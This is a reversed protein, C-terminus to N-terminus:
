KPKESALQQARRQHFEAKGKFADNDASKKKYYDALFVHADKYNPDSTL